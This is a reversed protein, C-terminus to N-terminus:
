QSMTQNSMNPSCLHRFQMNMDVTSLSFLFLFSHRLVSVVTTAPLRALMRPSVTTKPLNGLVEILAHYMQEQTGEFFKGCASLFLTDGLTQFIYNTIGPFKTIYGIFFIM